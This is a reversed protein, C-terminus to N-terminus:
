FEKRAYNHLLPTVSIDNQGCYNGGGHQDGVVFIQLSFTICHSLSCTGGSRRKADCVPGNNLRSQLQLGRERVKAQLL